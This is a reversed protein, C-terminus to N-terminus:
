ERVEEFRDLWEELQESENLGEPDKRRIMRKIEEGTFRVDSYKDRFLTTEPMRLIRLINNM